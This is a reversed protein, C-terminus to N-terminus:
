VNFVRIQWECFCLFHVIPSVVVMFWVMWAMSEWSFVGVSSTHWEPWWGGEGREALKELTDGNIYDPHFQAALMRMSPAALGGAIIHAALFVLFATAFEVMARGPRPPLRVSSRLFRPECHLAPSLVLFFAYEKLSLRHPTWPTTAGAGHRPALKLVPACERAFSITKLTFCACALGVWLGSALGWAYHASGWLGVAWCLVFTVAVAARFAMCGGGTWEVLNCLPHLLLAIVAILVMCAAASPFGEFHDRLLEASLGVSLVKVTTSGSGVGMAFGARHASFVVGVLPVLALLIIRHHHFRRRLEHIFPRRRMLGSYEPYSKPADLFTQHRVPRETKPTAGGM